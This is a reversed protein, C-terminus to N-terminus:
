SCAAAANLRYLADKMAQCYAVSQYNERFTQQLTGRYHEIVAM